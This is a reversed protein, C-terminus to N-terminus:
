VFVAREPRGAAGDSPVFEVIRRQDCGPVVFGEGVEGIGASLREAGGTAPAAMDGACEKVRDCCCPPIIHSRTPQPPRPPRRDRLPERLRDNTGALTVQRGARESTSLVCSCLRLFRELLGWHVDNAAASPFQGFM